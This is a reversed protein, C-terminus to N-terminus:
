LDNEMMEDVISKVNSVKGKRVTEVLYDSTVINEDLILEKCRNEADAKCDWISDITFKQLDNSDKCIRVIYVKM